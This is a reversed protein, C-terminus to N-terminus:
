KLIQEIHNGESIEDSSVGLEVAFLQWDSITKLDEAFSIPNDLKICIQKGSIM